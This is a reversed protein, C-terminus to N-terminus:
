LCYKEILKKVLRVDLPQNKTEMTIILDEGPYYGAAQYANIKRVAKESYEPDDM